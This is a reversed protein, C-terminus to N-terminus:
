GAAEGGGDLAAARRESFVCCQEAKRASWGGMRPFAEFDEKLCTERLLMNVLEDNLRPMDVSTRPMHPSMAMGENGDRTFFM